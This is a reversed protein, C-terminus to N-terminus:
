NGALLPHPHCISPNSGGRLELRKRTLTRQGERQRTIPFRKEHVGRLQPYNASYSACFARTEHGPKTTCIIWELCASFSADESGSPKRGAGIALGGATPCNVKKKKAKHVAENSKAELPSKDVGETGRRRSKGRQRVFLKMKWQRASAIIQMGGPDTRPWDRHPGIWNAIKLVKRAVNLETWNQGCPSNAAGCKGHM